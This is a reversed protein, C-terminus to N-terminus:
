EIQGELDPVARGAIFRHRNGKRDESPIELGRDALILFEFPDVGGSGPHIEVADRHLGLSQAVPLGVLRPEVFQVRHQAVRLAPQEVRGRAMEAHTGEADVLFGRGLTAEIQVAAFDAQAPGVRHTVLLLAHHAAVEILEDLVEQQGLDAVHIEQSEGLARHLRLDVFIGVHETEHQLAVKGEEAHHAAVRDALGNALGRFHLAEHAVARGADHDGVDVLRELVRMALGLPVQLANLHFREELAGVAHDTQFVGVPDDLMDVAIVIRGASRQGVVVAVVDPVVAVAEVEASQVLPIPELHFRAPHIGAALKSCLAELVFRQHPLGIRALPQGPSRLLLPGPARGGDHPRLAPAEMVHPEFGRLRDAFPDGGALCMLGPAHTQHGLGEAAVIMDVAKGDVQEDVGEGRSPHLRDHVALTTRLQCEVGVPVCTRRQHDAQAAVAVAEKGALRHRDFEPDAVVRM